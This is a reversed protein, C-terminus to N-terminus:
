IIGDTGTHISGYYNIRKTRKLYQCKGTYYKKDIQRYKCKYKNEYVYSDSIKM